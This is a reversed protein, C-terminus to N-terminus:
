ESDGGEADIYEEIGLAIGDPKAAVHVRCNFTLEELERLVWDFYALGAHLEEGGQSPLVFWVVEGTKRAVMAQGAIKTIHERKAEALRKRMTEPSKAGDLEALERLSAGAFHRDLLQTAEM